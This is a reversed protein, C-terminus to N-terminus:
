PDTRTPRGNHDMVAGRGPAVRPHKVLTVAVLAPVFESIVKHDAVTGSAAVAGHFDPGAPMGLLVASMALRRVVEKVLVADAYAQHAVEGFGAGGRTLEGSQLAQGPKETIPTPDARIPHDTVLRNVM